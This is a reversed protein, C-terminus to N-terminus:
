EHRGKGSEKDSVVRLLPERFARKRNEFANPGHVQDTRGLMESWRTGEGRRPSPAAPFPAWRGAFNM